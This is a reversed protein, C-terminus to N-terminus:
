ISDLVQEWRKGIAEPSYKDRIYDQGNKVLEDTMWGFEGLWQKAVLINGIYCFQKFEDHAPSYGALVFCGARISNILRNPSKYDTRTPILVLNNERLAKHQAELSWPVVGDVNPGSMITLDINKLKQTYPLIDKLNTRHGFWLAKKGQSHPPTEEEEYPDPIVDAGGLRRSMEETPCTVKDALEIMQQYLEVDTHDDCVDVVIKCKGKISKALEYDEPFPKSFVVVQAEGGNISAGIQKAPIMARYRYSAM